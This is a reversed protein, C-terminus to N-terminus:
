KRCEFIHNGINSQQYVEVKWPMKLVPKIDETPKLKIYFIRSGIRYLEDYDLDESEFPVSVFDFEDDKYPLHNIYGKTSIFPDIGLLKWANSYDRGSWGFLRFGRKRVTQIRQGDKCEIEIGRHFYPYRTYARRLIEDLDVKYEDM